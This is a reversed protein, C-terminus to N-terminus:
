VTVLAYAACVPSSTCAEARTIKSVAAGNSVGPITCVSSAPAGVVVSDTFRM